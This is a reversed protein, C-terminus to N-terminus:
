VATGEVIMAPSKTPIVREMKWGAGALLAAYEAETREKGSAVVLMELDLLKGVNPANGPPIVLEVLLLRGGPNAASRSNRLITMAKDDPWDHIIHKLLYCDGGAPVAKFFDGGEARCRDGLGADRIPGAAGEAVHPSDFVVGRVTPYRKLITTLLMGHGGGVDVVTGFRGFDYAEAVAPAMVSSFGTMGENFVASEGPRKGLYEFCGEGFVRDFATAGTRVSGLLDGWARWSWDAGCYDAIGRMSGPVGTRLCESMPTQRFRGDEEVFVGVSALARLLRYLSPAHTDTERALDAVSKPGDALKDALRLKAAVSVAMSVWKGFVLQALQADPPPASQEAPM